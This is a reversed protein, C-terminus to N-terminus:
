TSLESGLAVRKGDAGRDGVGADAKRLGEGAIRRVAQDVGDGDFVTERQDGVVAPQSVVRLRECDPLQRCAPRKWM